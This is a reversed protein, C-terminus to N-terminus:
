KAMDAALQQALARGLERRLEEMRFPKRLIPVDAGVAARIADTDAYGSAFVMPLGPRRKGLEEALEAGNMGPMAFDLLVADPRATEILALAEEGNRAEFVSHGDTRLSSAVVSRLDYDDDVLLVTAPGSIASPELKAEDPATTEPRDTCALLVRVATGEGPRSDIRVTGGTQRASGYVQALGLGTGKGISKTTFFPEMARRQTEEDMGTGTDTVCIEVYRGDALETDNDIEQIQTSITLTGGQPMADRANIALNLIMMEIQTPDSLVPVPDPNLRFQLAIMPGLSRELLSRLAEIVDCVIVPQVQIRQSRSFALLQSTLKSGREAAQLGAEAFRVVEEPKESRRRILEFAGVVAGLLNNFDHALGAVLQGMAEMKQSQLLAEQAQRLEETREEVRAELTANLEHLRDEAERRAIAARTRDAVERILALEGPTWVRAEAHNLYLLAVLGERESVPMNVVAQASIAKLADATASTRPDKEADDFVVTEGRKLDEIYSGYDRFQLVGALSRIGPANWDREITITEAAPDVTGYGVRSVNLTRGLTEAAAFALDAPDDLERFRDPLEVLARRRIEAEKRETVDTIVGIARLPSGDDDVVAEARLWLWRTAGDPRLYRFEEEFREGRRRAARARRVLRTLEGPYYRSRIEAATPTADEPFGLVRNLQPSGAIEDTVLDLEWVALHGAEIALSLRTQHQRETQELQHRVTVDEQVCLWFTKGDIEVASIRSSTVFTDGDKRRNLREGTWAGKSKLEALVPAGIWPNQNAADAKYASVHQGVLEGPKCDFMRELAANAYCIEGEETSLSVGEAMNDLLVRVLAPLASSASLDAGKPLVTAPADERRPQADSERM